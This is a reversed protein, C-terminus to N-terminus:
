PQPVIAETEFLRRTGDTAKASLQLTRGGFDVTVPYANGSYPADFVLAVVTPVGLYFKDVVFDHAAGKALLMLRPAANGPGCFPGKTAPSAPGAADAAQWLITFGAHAESDLDLFEGPMCTSTLQPCPDALAKEYLDYSPRSDAAKQDIAAAMAAGSSMGSADHLVKYTAVINRPAYGKAPVDNGNMPAAALMGGPRKAEPPFYWVSFYAKAIWDVTSKAETADAVGLSIMAAQVAVLNARQAPSPTPAAPGAPTTAVASVLASLLGQRVVASNPQGVSGVAVLTAFARCAVVFWRSDPPAAGGFDPRSAAAIVLYSGIMDDKEDPGSVLTLRTEKGQADTSVLTELVANALDLQDLDLNAFRVDKVPAPVFGKFSQPLTRVKDSTAAGVQSFVNMRAEIAGSRLRGAHSYPDSQQPIAALGLLLRIAQLATARLGFSPEGYRDARALTIELPAVTQYIDIGKTWSADVLQASLRGEKLTVSKDVIAPAPGQSIGLKGSPDIDHALARLGAEWGGYIRDRNSLLEELKDYTLEGQAFGPAAHDSTAMAPMAPCVCGDSNATATTTPPSPAPAPAQRAQTTPPAPTLPAAGTEMKQASTQAQEAMRRYTEETARTRVANQTFGDRRAPDSEAAARQDFQKAQQEIKDALDNFHAAQDRLLKINANNGGTGGNPLALPVPIIPPPLPTPNPAQAATQRGGLPAILLALGSIFAVLLARSRRGRRAM